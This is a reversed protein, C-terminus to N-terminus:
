ATPEKALHRGLKLLAASIATTAALLLWVRTVHRGARYPPGM